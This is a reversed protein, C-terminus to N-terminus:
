TAHRSPRTWCLWCDPLRWCRQAAPGLPEWYRCPRRHRCRRRHNLLPSSVGGPVVPPTVTGEILGLWLLGFEPWNAQALCWRRNLRLESSSQGVTQAGSNSPLRFTSRERPTQSDLLIYRDGSDRRRRFVREASSIQTPLDAKPISAYPTQSTAHTQALQPWAAFQRSECALAVSAPHIAACTKAPWGAGPM